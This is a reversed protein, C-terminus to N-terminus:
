ENNIVLKPRNPLIVRGEEVLYIARESYTVNEGNIIMVNGRAVVCKIRKTDPRFYVDIRDALINGRSDEVKVNKHFVAHSKKYNLELPGDCTIITRKKDKNDVLAIGSDMNPIAAIVGKQLEAVQEEFNCIAGMGYAEMDSKKIRVLSDTSASKTDANWDLKDTMLTTGDTTTAVVNHTLQVINEAKDFDGEKAKLKLVADQGFSLASIYDIHVINEHVQALKGNLRWREAGGEKYQVFSFNEIEQKAEKKEEAFCHAQFGVVLCICVVWRQRIRHVRWGGGM